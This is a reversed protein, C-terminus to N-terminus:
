HENNLHVAMTRNHTRSIEDKFYRWKSLPKGNQGNESFHIVNFIPKAVDAM